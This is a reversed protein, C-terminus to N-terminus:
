DVKVRNRTWKILSEPSRFLFILKGYLDQELIFDKAERVLYIDLCIKLLHDPNPIESIMVEMGANMVLGRIMRGVLMVVALYMAIIGGQVYKSVFSPFVRDVFVVMQLYKEPRIEYKIDELPLTLAATENNEIVRACWIKSEATRTTKLKMSINSFAEWSKPNSGSIVHLLSWAPKANGENPMIVYPPWANELLISHNYQGNVIKVLETRVTSNVPLPITLTYYHQTPYDAHKSNPREFTFRIIANLVKTGEKLEYKM